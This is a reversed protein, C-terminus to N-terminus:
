SQQFVRIYDVIMHQPFNTTSNPPGPWNGGVAVNFILYFPKRFESFNVTSTNLSSYEEGDLLWTLNNEEWILSFVHFEDSFDGSPLDTSQGFSAYNGGDDWHVTGHLKAPENGIIEMIDIEGCAPWGVEDINAGLMWLAPWLGQGKPLAARIDIRGYSFEFKDKTNIRSSTYSKGGISERRAEIVLYEDEFIGLNESQYYQLENNGWDCLDPCGDGVRITWKELNLSESNFEDSWALTLGDYSMPSTAGNEPITVDFQPNEVDDNIITGTATSNTIRANSVNSLRVQFTEDSEVINDGIITIDLDTGPATVPIEAMGGQVAVYDSGAEATGDVTSYELTIPGVREGIVSVEFSMTVDNDGEMLTVSSFSVTPLPTEMMPPEEEGCSQLICLCLISVPFKMYDPM